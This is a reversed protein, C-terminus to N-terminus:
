WVSRVTRLINLLRLLRLTRGVRLFEIAPINSILDVWRM